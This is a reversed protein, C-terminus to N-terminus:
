VRVYAWGAQQRRVVEGIGASVVHVGPLLASEPIEKRRMTNGCAALGVGLEVLEAVQEAFGTAGTLLSLGPGHAVLLFSAEPGLDAVTNSINRLVAEHRAAKDDDLQFVVRYTVDGPM